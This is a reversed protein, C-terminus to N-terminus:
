AWHSLLRQHPLLLHGGASAAPAGELPPADPRRDLRGYGSRYHKPDSPSIEVEVEGTWHKDRQSLYVSQGDYPHGPEVVSGGWVHRIDSDLQIHFPVPPDFDSLHARERWFRTPTVRLREPQGM